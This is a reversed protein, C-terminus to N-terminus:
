GPIGDLFGTVIRNFEDPRDLNVFHGAGSVEVRRAGPIEGALRGALTRNDPHDREPVIVLTPVNVQKLREIAPPDAPRMWAPFWRFVKRNHRINAALWQLREPKKDELSWFPDELIMRIARDFEGRKGLNLIKRIRGMMDRSYEFGSAASAALVLASVREPHELAFDLGIAGGMSLGAVAARDIDLFSLLARLDESNSFPGTPADSKGYGRVDYRIVRFRRGLAEFQDDWMRRDVFGGHILVLPPGTGLIEYYLGTGGVAAVGTKLGTLGAGPGATTSSDRM